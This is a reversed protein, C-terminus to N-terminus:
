DRRSGLFRLLHVFIQIFDMYLMLAGIVSQREAYAVDYRDSYAEKIKQTDYATLASFIVLGMASMTLDIASSRMFLNVLSLLFLGFAGMIMFSGIPGLDRKTTYGYLSLSGFSAATIFFTQVISKSTYVLFFSSLSLGILASYLLFMMKAAYASLSHLRVNLFIFVGLPAFIFIWRLPSTYMLAGFGTLMVGRNIIISAADPDVTTALINVLFSMIGTVGLGLAMLNYVRIMYARLGQDITSGFGSGSNVVRQYNRIDSM